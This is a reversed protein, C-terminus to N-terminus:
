MHVRASTRSFQHPDLLVLTVRSCTAHAQGLDHSTTTPSNTLEDKCFTFNNYATKCKRKGTLKLRRNVLHKYALRPIGVTKQISQLSM